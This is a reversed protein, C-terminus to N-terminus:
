QKIYLNELHLCTFGNNFLVPNNHPITKSRKIVLDAVVLNFFIQFSVSIVLAVLSRKANVNIEGIAVYAEAM